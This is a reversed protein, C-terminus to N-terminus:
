EQALERCAVMYVPPPGVKSDVTPVDTECDFDEALDDAARRAAENAKPYSGAVYHAHCSNGPKLANVVLWTVSNGNDDSVVSWREIAAIPKGNKLRWEVPSLATNFPGFTKRFACHSRGDQGFAVYSREDSSAQIIDIGAYGKCSWTGAYTYEDGKEVQKCRDLDFKTYVSSYEAASAAIPWLCLVSLAMIRKM